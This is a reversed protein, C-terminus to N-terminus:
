RKETRIAQPAYRYFLDMADTRGKAAYLAAPDVGRERLVRAWAFVKEKEDKYKPKSLNEELEAYRRLFFAALDALQLLGVDQSDAFYPVDIVQDLAAQNKQRGYYTDSWSPPRQIIDTFGLREKEENDFIFLTNGKNKQLRQHVKQIALVLHFGLFRWPTNLEDPIDRSALGEYYREKVM